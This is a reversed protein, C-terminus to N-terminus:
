GKGNCRALESAELPKGDVAFTTVPGTEKALASCLIAPRSTGRPAACCTGECVWVVGRSVFRSKPAPASLDARYYAGGAASAATSAPGVSVILAAGGLALLRPLPSFIHGSM